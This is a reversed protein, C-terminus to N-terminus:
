YGCKKTHCKEIVGNRLLFIIIKAVTGACNNTNEVFFVKNKKIKKGQASIEDQLLLLKDTSYRKTLKADNGFSKKRNTELRDANATLIILKNNRTVYQKISNPALQVGDFLVNSVGQAELKPVIFRLVSSVAQAYRNFGKLLNDVSYSGSGIMRYSDCSGYRVFSNRKAKRKRNEMEIAVLRVIDMNQMACGEILSAVLPAITTKGSLPAGTIFILTGQKSFKYKASKM